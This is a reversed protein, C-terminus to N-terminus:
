SLNKLPAPKKYAAFNKDLAEQLSVFGFAGEQYDNIFAKIRWANAETLRITQM